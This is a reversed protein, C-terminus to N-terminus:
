APGTARPRSWVWGGTLRTPRSWSHSRRHCVWGPCSSSTSEPSIAGARALPGCVWGSSLSSCCRWRSWSGRWTRRRATVTSSMAVPSCSSPCAVRSWLRSCWCGSPGGNSSRAAGLLPMKPRMRDALHLGFLVATTATLAAVNMAAQPSVEELTEGVGIAGFLGWELRLVPATMLFGYNLCVWLVHLRIQHRVASIWALVASMVTGVLITWLSLGFVPGTFIDDLPENVLYITSGTMSAFVTALYLRGAIVHNRQRRRPRTYLLYPGLLMLLAGTVSHSVMALMNAQYPGTRGELAGELFGRVGGEPLQSLLAVPEHLTYPVMALAAMPVYMISVVTVATWGRGPRTVHGRGM